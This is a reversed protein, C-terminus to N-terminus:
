PFREGGGVYKNINNIEKANSRNHCYKINSKPLILDQFPTLSIYIVSHILLGFIMLLMTIRNHKYYAIYFYLKKQIGGRSM